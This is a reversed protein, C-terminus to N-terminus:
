RDLRLYLFAGLLTYPVNAAWAAVAPHLTGAHGLAVGWAVLQYYGFVLLVAYLVGLAIGGSRSSRFAFPIALLATMAPAFSLAFKAQLDTEQGATRQGSQRLQEIHERLERATMAEAKRGAYKLRDPLPLMLVERREFSEYAVAGDAGFRRWQGGYAVWREGEWRVEHAELTERVRTTEGDVRWFGLDTIREQAPDYTGMRFFRDEDRFWLDERLRLRKSVKGRIEQRFIREARATSEPVVTQEFVFGLAGLLLSAGILPVGMRRISVGGARAATVEHNKALVAFALLAALFVSIPLMQYLILPLKYGFYALVQGFTADYRSFRGVKEFFDIILYLTAFAVLILVWIRLFESLLYRALIRVAGGEPAGPAGGVPDWGPRDM